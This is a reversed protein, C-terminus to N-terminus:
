GECAPATPADRWLSMTLIRGLWIGEGEEAMDDETGGEEQQGVGEGEHGGGM